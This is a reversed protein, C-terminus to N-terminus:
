YQQNKDSCEADILAKDNDKIINDEDDPTQWLELISGMLFTQYQYSYVDCEFSM